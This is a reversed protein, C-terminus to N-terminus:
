FFILFLKIFESRSDLIVFFILFISFKFIIFSDELFNNFLFILAGGFIIFLWIFTSYINDVSDFFLEFINEVLEILSSGVLVFQFAESILLYDILNMGRWIFNFSLVFKEYLVEFFLSAYSDIM